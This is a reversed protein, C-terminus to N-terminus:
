NQLLKIIKKYNNIEEILSRNEICEEGRKKAEQCEKKDDKLNEEAKELYEQAYKMNEQAHKEINAKNKVLIKVINVLGYQIAKQIPTEYHEGKDYINAGHKLLAEVTKECHPDYKTVALHIPADNVKSKIDIKANHRMLEEIANTRCYRAAMHLASEGFRNTYNVDRGKKILKAIKDVRGKSAARLLPDSPSLKESLDCGNLLLVLLYIINHLQKSKM